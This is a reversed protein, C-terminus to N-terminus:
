KKILYATLIEGQNETLRIVVMLHKKEEKLYKYYYIIERRYLDQEILDPNIITEEVLSIKNQMEQHQYIHKIREESLLITRNYRDKFYINM